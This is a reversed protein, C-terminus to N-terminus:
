RRRRPRFVRKPGETEAEKKETFAKEWTHIENSPLRPKPRPKRPSAQAGRRGTWQTLTRVSAGRDRVRIALNRDNTVVSWSRAAGGTPLRDIIVDDASRRGSYVITVQGLHEAEPSGDPPPGDFVVTVSIRERRSQNLVSQRVAERSRQHPPLSHLLNNGDIVIPM